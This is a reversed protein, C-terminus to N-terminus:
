SQSYEDISGGEVVKISIPIFYMFDLTSLSYSNGNDLIHQVVENSSDIIETKVLIPKHPHEYQSLLFEALPKRIHLIRFLRNLKTKRKFKSKEFEVFLSILTDQFKHIFNQVFPGFLELVVEPNKFQQQVTSLDSDEPLIPYTVDFCGHDTSTFTVRLYNHNEVTYSGGECNKKYTKRIGKKWNRHAMFMQRHLKKCFRLYGTPNSDYTNYGWYYNYKGFGVHYRGYCSEDVYNCQTCRVFEEVVGIGSEYFSETDPGPNGCIPCTIYGM